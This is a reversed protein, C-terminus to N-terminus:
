PENAEKLFEKWKWDHLEIRKGVDILNQAMTELWYEAIELEAQTSRWRIEARNSDSNAKLAISRTENTADMKKQLTSDIVFLSNASKSATVKHAGSVSGSCNRSKPPTCADGKGYPKSSKDHRDGNRTDRSNPNPNPDTKTSSPTARQSEHGCSASDPSTVHDRKKMASDIMGSNKGDYHAPSATNKKQRDSQNREIKRASTSHVSSRQSPSGMRSKTSKKAQSVSRTKSSQRHDDQRSDSSRNRVRSGDKEGKGSHSSRQSQKAREISSSKSTHKRRHGDENENISSRM